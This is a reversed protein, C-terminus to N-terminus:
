RKLIGYFIIELFDSIRKKLKPLSAVDIWELEIGKFWVIINEALAELDNIVFVEQAIGYKMIHIITEKESIDYGKRLKELSTYNEIYDDRLINMRNAVKSVAILRTIIYTYLRKQPDKENAIASQIEAKLTKAENNAIERIIDEKSKFYYYLSSKAKGAAHAIDDMTTKKLGYQHFCQQAMKIFKERVEKKGFCLM